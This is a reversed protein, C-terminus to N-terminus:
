KKHSKVHEIEVNTMVDDEVSSADLIQRNACGMNPCRPRRSQSLYDQFGKKDYIHGCNRNRVAFEIPKKTFPDIPIAPQSSNIVELDGSARTKPTSSSQLLAKLDRIYSSRTPSASQSSSQSQQLVQAFLTDGEPVNSADGLPVADEDDDDNSGPNVQIQVASAQIQQISQHFAETTTELHAKQQLLKGAESILEDVPITVLSAIAKEGEKLSKVVLLTNKLVDDIAAKAETLSEEM